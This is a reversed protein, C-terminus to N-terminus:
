RKGSAANFDYGFGAEELLELVLRVPLGMVGFFDGEVREVLAAGFGQIGYAGSKDMPEGTAIYARLFDDSVHRFTVKTVDTKVRVQRLHSLAVATVVEHTHGQLRKLMQLADAEDAPKEFLHSGYVVITDAALVLDGDVSMAKSQALRQAYPIPKENAIRVEPVRSPVVTVPIGLMELLQRRRPSASALVLPPIM